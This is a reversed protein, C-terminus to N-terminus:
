RRPIPPSAKDTAAAAEVPSLAVWATAAGPPPQASGDPAPSPAPRCCWQHVTAAARALAAPPAHCDQSAPGEPLGGPAGRPMAALAPQPPASASRPINSRHRVALPRLPEHTGASGREPGVARPPQPPLYLATAPPTATRPGPARPPTPPAPRLPRRCVRFTVRVQNTRDM